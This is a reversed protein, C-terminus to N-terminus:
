GALEDLKSIITADNKEKYEDILYAYIDTTTSLDSHGLRKSIAYIDVGQSLLYAVHTHRLSHFNFDQKQINLEALINRLTKNIANNSPILGRQNKFVMKPDNGKLQHLKDLLTQNVRITRVSSRNKTPKFGGGNQYDWSKNISITQWKFDIDDWTLAMVESIRMGTMIATLIMYRSTYRPKLGTICSATLHHLEKISLYEVKRTRSPDYTLQIRRTFDKRIVDDYIANKVCSRIIINLKQVTHKAHNKGFYNIFNQYDVRDIESIKRDKFYKQLTRGINEYRKQTGISSQERKFTNYWEWFYEAFPTDKQLPSIGDIINKQFETAFIQAESKRKFGRKLKQRRKGNEVWSLRVQWSKDPLQKYSAMNDSREFTHEKIRRIFGAMLVPFTAIDAKLTM